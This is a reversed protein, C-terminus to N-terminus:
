TTRKRLTPFYGTTLELRWSPHILATANTTALMIPVPTKVVLPQRSASRFDGHSTSAAHNM